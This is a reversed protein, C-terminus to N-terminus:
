ILFFGRKKVSRTPLGSPGAEEPVAVRLPVRAEKVNQCALKSERFKILFFEM